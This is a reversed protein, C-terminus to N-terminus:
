NLKLKTNKIFVKKIRMLLNENYFRKPNNCDSRNYTTKLM